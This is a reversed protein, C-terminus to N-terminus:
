GMHTPTEHCHGTLGGRAGGQLRGIGTQQQQTGLHNALAWLGCVQGGFRIEGWGVSVIGSYVHEVGLLGVSVFLVVGLQIKMLRICVAGVGWVLGRGGRQRRRWCVRLSRCGALYGIGSLRSQFM